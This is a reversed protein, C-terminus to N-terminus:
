RIQTLLALCSLLRSLLFYRFDCYRDFIFFWQYLDNKGSKPYEGSAFYYLDPLLAIIERMYFSDWPNILIM